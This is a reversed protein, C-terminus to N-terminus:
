RSPRPNLNQPKLPAPVSSNTDPKKPLLINPNNAIKAGMEKNAIREVLYGNKRLVDDRFKDIFNHKYGIHQIGDFEVVKKVEKNNEDKYTVLLDVFYGCVFAESVYKADPHKKQHEAIYHKTLTEQLSYVPPRCESVLSDFTTKNQTDLKEDLGLLSVGNIIQNKHEIAKAENLSLKILANLSDHQIVIKTSIIGAAWIINNIEQPAADARKANFTILLNNIIVPDLAISNIKGAEILKAIAWCVNSIEQPKADARKANFITLLNNIITPNLILDNLKGAETLKAIAWCVNSIEQPKADARKANFITLLNNIITPNLILDNLKGAETLKAIAWYFNSISQPQADACKANFTTLFNNVITPDLTLDNLKGAETM